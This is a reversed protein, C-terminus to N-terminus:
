EEPKVGLTDDFVIRIELDTLTMDTDIQAFLATEGPPLILIYSADRTQLRGEAVLEGSKDYFAALAACVITEPYDNVVIADVFTDGEQEYVQVNRFSLYQKFHDAGSIFSGKADFAPAPTATAAPMSSPSPSPTPSPTPAITPAPLTEGPVLAPRASVCGSLAAALLASALIILIRKSAAWRKM